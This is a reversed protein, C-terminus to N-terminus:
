YRTGISFMVWGWESSPAGVSSRDIAQATVSIELPLRIIISISILKM